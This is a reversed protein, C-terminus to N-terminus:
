KLNLKQEAKAVLKKNEDYLELTVKLNAPDTVPPSAYAISKDFANQVKKGGEIEATNKPVPVTIVRETPAYGEIVVSFYSPKIIGAENNTVTYYITKITGYGGAENWKFVPVRTFELKVNSYSTVVSQSTTTADEPIDAEPTAEASTEELTENDASATEEIPAVEVVETETVEPEATEEPTQEAISDTISAFVSGIPVTSPFLYRGTLFSSSLLLVAITIFVVSRLSISVKKEMLPQSKLFPENPKIEIKQGPM